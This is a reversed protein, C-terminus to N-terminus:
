YPPGGDDPDGPPTGRGEPETDDVGDPPRGPLRALDHATTHVTAPPPEPRTSTRRGTPSTWELAGATTQRVRWRTQHKLQHHHRCLMALNGAATAGGDAWALTHDAEAAHAPRVCGPFRCTADRLAVWRQLGAPPTYTRRGMSLPVGSEPDTLLRAFSPALGALERAADPGIPTVGDLMGPEESRGLLTLVPVTVTVHPRIARALRALSFRHDPLDPSPGPPPGHPPGGEVVGRLPAGGSGREDSGPGVTGARGVAGGPDAAGALEAAGGPDATGGLDVAGGLDLAGDDLALDILADARLQALTRGDGSTRAARGTRTLRDFVAHAAPAPLCASLFAMGDAGPDLAVYRKAVAEEHRVTVPTPHVRERARRARGRLRRDCVTAAPGALARDVEGAAVADLDSVARAVVRANGWPVTGALAGALTRPAKTVLTRARDTWDAVADESARVAVAVDAVVARHALERRRSGSAVAAHPDSGDVLLDPAAMAQRRARELLLASVAQARNVLDQVAVLAEVTAALEGAAVAAHVEVVSSVLSAVDAPQGAAAPAPTAYPNSLDRGLMAAAAEPAGAAGLRAVLTGDDTLPVWALAAARAAM